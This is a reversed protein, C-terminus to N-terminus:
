PPQLGLNHSRTPPLCISALIGIGLAHARYQDSSRLVRPPPAHLMHPLWPYDNLHRPGPISLAPLPPFIQLFDINVCIRVFPFLTPAGPVRYRIGRMRRRRRVTWTGATTPHALSHAPLHMQWCPPSPNGQLSTPHTLASACLMYIM